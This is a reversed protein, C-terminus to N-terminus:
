EGQRQGGGQGPTYPRKPWGSGLGIYLNEVRFPATGEYEIKLARRRFNGLGRAIARSKGAAPFPLTRPTSWTRGDDDSYSLEFVDATSGTVPNLDVDVYHLPTRVQKPGFPPTVLTRRVPAGGEDGLDSVVEYVNGNHADGIYYRAGLFAAGRGRWGVYGNSARHHWLKNRDCYEFTGVGPITLAYFDTADAVYGVGYAQLITSDDITSLLKELWPPSIPAVTTDEGRYVKRNHGLWYIRDTLAVASDAALLGIEFMANSYRLFPFGSQGANYLLETSVAGLAWITLKSRIVRKLDDFRAEATAFNLADINAPDLPLSAYMKDSNIVSYVTYNDMETVSSATETPTLTFPTVFSTLKDVLATFGYRCVVLGARDDGFMAMGAGPMAGITTKTGLVDKVIRNGFVGYLLNNYSILGDCPDNGTNAVLRLGATGQVYYAGEQGEEMRRPVAYCNVLRSGSAPLRSDVFSAAGPDLRMGTAAALALHQGAACFHAM